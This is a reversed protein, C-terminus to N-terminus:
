ALRIFVIRTGSLRDHLFQHDRDFIAWLLGAGYFGVSPWALLFRLLLQPWSPSSGTVSTLRIKWTQMALTQGGHRWYWLFYAAFVIVLHGMLMPHPAAIHFILGLLMHPVVLAAIVVGLLLLSDYIASALRRRIGPLGAAAGSV